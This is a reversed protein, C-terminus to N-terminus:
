LGTHLFPETDWEEDALPPPELVHSAEHLRVRGEELELRREAGEGVMVEEASAIVGHFRSSM